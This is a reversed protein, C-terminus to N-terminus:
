DNDQCRANNCNTNMPMAGCHACGDFEVGLNQLMAIFPARAEDTDEIDFIGMIETLEKEVQDETDHLTRLEGITVSNGTISPVLLKDIDDFM